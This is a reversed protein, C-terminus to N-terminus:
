NKSLCFGLVCTVSNPRPPIIGGGSGNAVYVSSKPRPPIIGGGSGSPVYVTAKPNLNKDKEEEAFPTSSFLLIALVASINTLTQM